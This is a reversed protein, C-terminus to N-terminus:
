HYLINHLIFKKSFGSTLSEVLAVLNETQQFEDEALSDHDINSDRFFKLFISQGMWIQMFMVVLM